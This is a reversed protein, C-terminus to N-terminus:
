GPANFWDAITGESRLLFGEGDSLRYRVGDTHVGTLVFWWFPGDRRPEVEISGRVQRSGARAPAWATAATASPDIGGPWGGDSTARWM